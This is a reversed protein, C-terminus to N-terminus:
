RPNYQIPFKTFKYPSKSM